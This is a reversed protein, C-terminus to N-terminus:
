YVTFLCEVKADDSRVIARHEGHDSRMRIAWRGRRVPIQRHFVRQCGRDVSLMLHDTRARGKLLVIPGHVRADFRPSDIYLGVAPAFPRWMNVLWDKWRWKGPEENSWLGTQKKVAFRVENSQSGHQIVARVSGVPLKVWSNWRGAGDAQLHRRVLLRGDRAHIRLLLPTKPPAQGILQIHSSRAISYWEPSTIRLVHRIPRHMREWYMSDFFEDDDATWYQIQRYHRDRLRIRMTYAFPIGTWGDARAALLGEGWVVAQGHEVKRLAHKAVLVRRLPRDAAVVERIHWEAENRWDGVHRATAPGNSLCCVWLLLLWIRSSLASRILAVLRDTM